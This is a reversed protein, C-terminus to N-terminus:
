VVQLTHVMLAHADVHTHTRMHNSNSKLFTATDVHVKRPHTDKRAHYSLDNVKLWRMLVALLDFKEDVPGAKCILFRAIISSFINSASFFLFFM